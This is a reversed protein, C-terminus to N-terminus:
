DEDVLIENWENLSFDQEYIISFMVTLIKYMIEGIDEEIVVKKGHAISNRKIVVEDLEAIIRNFRLYQDNKYLNIEKLVSNLKKDILKRNRNAYYRIKEQLNLNVKTFVQNFVFDYNVLNKESLEDIIQEKLFEKYNSYKNIFFEFTKEYLLEIFNDLSAFLNFFAMKYNKYKINICAELLYEIFTPVEENKPIGRVNCQLKLGAEEVDWASIDNERIFKGEFYVKKDFLDCYKIEFKLVNRVWSENEDIVIPEDIYTIISFDDIKLDDYISFEYKRYDDEKTNINEINKFVQEEKIYPLIENLIVFPEESFVKVLFETKTLTDFDRIRNFSNINKFNSKIKEFYVDNLELIDNFECSLDYAIQEKFINEINSITEKIIVTYNILVM